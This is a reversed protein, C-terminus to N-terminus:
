FKKQLGPKKLNKKKSANDAEKSRLTAREVQSARSPYVSANQKQKKKKPPKEEPTEKLPIVNYCTKTRQNEKIINIWKHVAQIDVTRPKWATPKERIGTSKVM